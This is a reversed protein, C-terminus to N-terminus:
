GYFGSAKNGPSPRVPLLVEPNTSQEWVRKYQSLQGLDLHDALRFYDSSPM